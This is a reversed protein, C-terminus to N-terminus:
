SIEISVVIKLVKLGPAPPPYGSIGDAIAENSYDSELSPTENDFATVVFFHKIGIPLRIITKEVIAPDANEDETLDMPVINSYPPGSDTDWYINYGALDSVMVADWQLTVNMTVIQNTEQAYLSNVTFFILICATLFVKKM